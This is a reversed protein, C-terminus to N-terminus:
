FGCEGEIVSDLYVRDFANPVALQRPHILLKLAMNGKLEPVIESDLRFALVVVMQWGCSYLRGKLRITDPKGGRAAREAPRCLQKGDVKSFHRLTFM